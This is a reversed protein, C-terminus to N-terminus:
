VPLSDSGLVLKLFTNVDAGDFGNWNKMVERALEVRKEKEKEIRFKELEFEKEIRLRELAFHRDAIFTGYASDDDDNDDDVIDSDRESLSRKRNLNMGNSDDVFQKVMSEVVVIITDEPGNDLHVVETLNNDGITVTRLRDTFRMHERFARELWSRDEFEIAFYLAFSYDRLTSYHSKLRNELDKTIGFKMYPRNDFEFRILYFVSKGFFDSVFRGRMRPSVFSGEPTPLQIIDTSANSPVPARTTSIYSGTRRIAPLVEGCVWDRFLRAQPLKSGMILSYLGAEEIWITNGDQQSLTPSAVPGAKDIFKRARKHHESVHNAIPKTGTEEAYGLASLVNNGRFWFKGDVLMFPIPNTPAHRFTLTEGSIDFGFEMSEVHEIDEVQQISSRTPVPTSVEPITPQKPVYPKSQTTPKPPKPPKPTSRRSSISSASMPPVWFTDPPLDSLESEFQTHMSHLMNRLLVSKDLDGADMRVRVIHRLMRAAYGIPVFRQNSSSTTSQTIRPPLRLPIAMSQIRKNIDALSFIQDRPISTFKVMSASDICGLGLATTIKSFAV